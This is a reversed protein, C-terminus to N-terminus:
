SVGKLKDKIWELVISSIPTEEVQYQLTLIKHNSISSQLKQIDSFKTIVDEIMNQCKGIVNKLDEYAEALQIIKVDYIPCGKFDKYLGEYNKVKDTLKVGLEKVDERTFEKELIGKIENEHEELIMKEKIGINRPFLGSFNLTEELSKLSRMTEVTKIEYESRLNNVFEELMKDLDILSEMLLEFLKQNKIERGDEIPLYKIREVNEALRNLLEICDKIIISNVKREKVSVMYGYPFNKYKNNINNLTNKLERFKEELQKRVILYYDKDKDSGIKKREILMKLYIDVDFVNMEYRPRIFFDNIENKSLSRNYQRLIAVIRKECETLDTKYCGDESEKILKNEVLDDIFRKLDKETEFDKSSIAFSRGYIKFKEELERIQGYRESLNGDTLLLSRLIGPVEDPKLNKLYLQRITYGKIEGEQIFHELDEEFKLENLIRTARAKWKEENIQYGKEKALAYGVIQHCHLTTLPFELYYFIRGEEGKEPALLTELINKVELPLPNWSFFLLLPIRAIKMKEKIKSLEDNASALPLKLPSHIYSRLDYQLTGMKYTLNIVEIDRFEYSKVGKQVLINESVGDQLLAMIGERFQRDYSSLNRMLDMGIEFRKDLDEIFDLFFLSPSPYFINLAAPSLMIYREESKDTLDFIEKDVLIRLEGEDSLEPAFTTFYDIFNRFMREHEDRMKGLAMYPVFLSNDFSQNELNYDYFELASVIKSLKSPTKVKSYIADQGKIIKKFYIYPWVNWIKNFSEGILNLYDRYENEKLNLEEKINQESIPVPVALFMGAFNLCKNFDLKQNKCQTEVEKYFMNLSNKDLINVDGGYVKVKRGSLISVFDSPNIVKIKGEPAYTKAQTILLEIVNIIARPNGMTALYIANFMGTKSFPLKTLKGNWIYKIVGLIFEYANKRDLKELEIVQARQGFLRGTDTLTATSLKQYAPPTVAIVIHFRGAYTGECLCRPYGNIVELLGGIVFNQLISSEDLMDEFEDLFIIVRSDANLAGFMSRLGNLVFGMTPEDEKKFPIKIKDFPKINVLDNEIVDKMACLLCAFFRIGSSQTDYFKQAYSNIANLLRRTSVPIILDHKIVEPKKLLGEYISTKGEGWEAIIFLLKTEKSKRVGELFSEIKRYTGARPLKAYEELSIVDKGTISPLQYFEELFEDEKM